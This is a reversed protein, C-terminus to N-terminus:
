GGGLGVARPRRAGSGLEQITGSTTARAPGEIARASSPSAPAERPLALLAFELVLQSALVESEELEEPRLAERAGRGGDYEAERLAGERVPVELRTSAFKM